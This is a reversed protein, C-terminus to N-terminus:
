QENDTQRGRRRKDADRKAQLLQQIHAPAPAQKEKDIKPKEDSKPTPESKPVVRAVPVNGKYEENAKYRKSAAAKASRAALQSRIKKQTLQLQDITKDTKRKPRLLRVLSITRRAVARVDLAIRRVAVDLLFLGLWIYILERTIPLHTQPLVAADYDFLDAQNPDASLIRGGTIAAVQRLLPENDRLDRFEPAFPITVTTQTLATAANEGTKKHRLNVVYSGSAVARFNGRYQGPGTQVLELPKVSANPTIIQADINAFQVFQGQRDVAEVNVTVDRGQIDAFVECDSSQAPKGVWDVAQKWFNEFGGWQLWQAAWRSDVSSTFAVVRGLGAQWAACIPDSEPGAILTQALGGKPGTLVYGDLKPLPSNLGKTIESLGGILNPSFTEEVILSRKVVQAEKIFIRPLNTPNQVNYFRGGTAQAVYKLKLVDAPNHPFIAVGSVTIEAQRCQALLSPSPPQPDADTIAIVHKQGAPCAKLQQYAAQLLNHLSPMDGMQMNNIANTVAKKDGVEALPFVWNGTGQWGYALIGVLDKSSLTRVSALAVKKGWYNGQPMECAHMILVLAGKPLQKKQPPDLDVPLIDAVPSGIWGGAGFAKPGGVMILGGGIDTVYRCIMEQQQFSFNSIDTDVLIVADTDTLRALNQPFDSVHCYRVTIRSNLLAQRLAAATVEDSDVVLVHGPGAVYTIAEAQNNQTITDQNSDAPLFVAEFEHTGTSNLPVSITKVNTGPELDVAAAIEPGPDLDVSQGNLNLLLRGGAYGTSNLIFRLSVTQGTRARSPAALRKFIVEHNYQYRLPLVDIPIKNAAALRAAEKLDGATQNGETVLAIRVASDPPAIAMAMQVGDALRSQDGTLSTNRRRIQPNNTPLKSISAAEAIDVVALRNRLDMGKLAAALYDLSAQRLGPPISQSRDIVAIVTLQRNTRTLMPRALLIVLLLVTLCRLIVALIRRTRGISALSRMALWVIPVIIVSAVLWWPQGLYFGYATNM